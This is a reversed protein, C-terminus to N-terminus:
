CWVFCWFHHQCGDNYDPNAKELYLISVVFELVKRERPDVCDVVAHGDKPNISTSFKGDVFKDTRSAHGRDEKAFSYVEAWSDAM